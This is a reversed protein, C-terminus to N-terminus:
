KKFSEEVYNKRNSSKEKIDKELNSKTEKENIKSSSCINPNPISTPNMNSTNNEVNEEDHYTKQESKKLSEKKFSEEVDNERNSSRAIKKYNKTTPMNRTPTPPANINTVDFEIIKKEQYTIPQIKKFSDDVDNKLSSNPAIKKIKQPTPVNPNRTANTNPQKKCLNVQMLLPVM